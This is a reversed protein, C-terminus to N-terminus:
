HQLMWAPPTWDPRAARRANKEARKMLWLELEEAKNKPKYSKRDRWPEDRLHPRIKENYAKAVADYLDSKAM